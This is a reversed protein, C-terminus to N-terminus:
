NNNGIFAGVVALAIVSIMTAKKGAKAMKCIGYGVGAGVAGYIVANKTNKM